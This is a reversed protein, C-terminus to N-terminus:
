AGRLADTLRDVDHATVHFHPAIRISEGRQSVHINRARLREILAQPDRATFGLIHRSRFDPALIEYDLPAIAEAIHDTIVGLGAEIESIGWTEIQRLAAIAGPLM